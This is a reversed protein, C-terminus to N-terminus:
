GRSLCKQAGVLQALSHFPLLAKPQIPLNFLYTSIYFVRPMERVSADIWREMDRFLPLSDM